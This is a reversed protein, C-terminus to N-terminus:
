EFLRDMRRWGAEATHLKYNQFIELYKQYNSSLARSCVGKFLWFCEPLLPLLVETSNSQDVSLIGPCGPSWLSVRDQFFLVFYFCVFSGSYKM